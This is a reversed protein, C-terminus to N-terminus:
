KNNKSAFPMGFAKLLEFSEEDTKATTVFTIDMGSITSVKDISIEPFIIQEKVGLTYNGRGDFGKDKVGQFDRVRPLSVSLLRDLFEYMKEGRLTVKAGIPMGERLKFNSISNKAYTPVAKQGTIMTLEEVGIDVLKKDATAAGIGKNIVIKTLKPVEMASSYQFKEKLAPIIEGLYLDKIRPNAM